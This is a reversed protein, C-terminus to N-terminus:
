TLNMVSLHRKEDIRVIQSANSESSSVIHVNILRRCSVILTQPIM